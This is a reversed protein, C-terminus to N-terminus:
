EVSFLYQYVPQNGTHVEVELNDDKALLKEAVENAIETSGQEGVIITVIESEEDLMALLATTLAEKEEPVSAIIAGDVISMFDNKHIEVSDIVTDRIATTVQGSKVYSIAETMSAVNEALTAQPNFGLMAALGLPISKTLVVKVYDGLVEAAQNAAMFINKNNPLIIVNKANTKEIEKCIDETSPNMTQGGSILNTVGVSKFLEGVGEGSAIAIIAYEKQPEISKELIEKTSDKKIFDNNQLRMNDVKVKVLSGFRQGYNMVNGPRETHVHVKIIEDDAVVLLSDGLDNLYNRFTDYDFTDCVTEGEGIQVMIETCYGYKIDGTSAHAVDVFEHHAVSTLDVKTSAVARTPRQGTLAEYFGEYIFTLGQGGSDVVGVEKLVSLLEPTHDLSIQAGKVLSKVVAVCDGTENAAKEAEAASERAVTLITGEVPKMVAQYATEVGKQFAAALGIADVTDKGALSQSFGRFLQSLIVGSNGRAGMLLGKALDNAMDGVTTAGNSIVRDSGSTFSLNMNTGTDGDPVPFVNLSNVLEANDTLRENGLQIMNELDEVTLKNKVM